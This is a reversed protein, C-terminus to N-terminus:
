NVELNLVLRVAVLVLVLKYLTKVVLLVFVLM